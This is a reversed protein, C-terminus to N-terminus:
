IREDGFFIRVQRIDMMGSAKEEDGFVLVLDYPRGPRYQGLTRPFSSLNGGADVFEGADPLGGEGPAYATILEAEGYGCRLVVPIESGDRAKGYSAELTVLVRPNQAYM